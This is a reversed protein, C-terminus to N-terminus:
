GEKKPPNTFELKFMTLDGKPLLLFSHLIYISSSDQHSYQALLLDNRFYGVFTCAYRVSTLPEVLINKKIALKLSM